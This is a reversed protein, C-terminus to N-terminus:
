PTAKTRPDGLDSGKPGLQNLRQEIARLREDIGPSITPDSADRGGLARIRRNLRELEKSKLIVAKRTEAIRELTLDLSETWSKRAEDLGAPKSAELARLAREDKASQSYDEALRAKLARVEIGLLDREAELDTREEARKEDDVPVEISPRGPATSTTGGPVSLSGAGAQPQSPVGPTGGPTPKSAEPRSAREFVERLHRPQVSSQYYLTLVQDNNPPFVDFAGPRSLPGDDGRMRSALRLQLSAGNRRYIGPVPMEPIATSQPFTLDVTKPDTGSDVRYRGVTKPGDPGAGAALVVIGDHFAYARVALKQSLRNASNSQVNWVGRLDDIGAVGFLQVSARREVDPQLREKLVQPVQQEYHFLVVFQDAVDKPRFSKCKPRTEDGPKSMAMWLWTGVRRFVARTRRLGGTSPDPDVLDISRPSTKADTEYRGIYPVRADLAVFKGSAFAYREGVQPLGEVPKGMVGASFQSDVTWIGDIDTTSEVPEKGDAREDMYAFPDIDLSSASDDPRSPSPTSNPASATTGLPVKAAPVTQGKLREVMDPTVTREYKLVAVRNNNPPLMDFNTPRRPDHPLGLSLILWDGSRKYIAKTVGDGGKTDVMYTFDIAHPESMTNLQYRGILDNKGDQKLFRGQHFVHRIGKGDTSVGKDVFNVVAWVGEIDPDSTERDTPAAAKPESIPVATAAGSAPSKGSGPEDRLAVASAGGAVLGLVLVGGAVKGLAAMMTMRPVGNVLGVVGMPVVEAGMRGGLSVVGSATRVTREILGEPMTARAEAAIGAALLGAPVGFGRRVLRARLLTRARALRGKVTGLPWDLLRAAEVHTREEIDCVVIPLRYREPLRDIEEHLAAILDGDLGPSDAAVATVISALDGGERRWRREATRNARNAVRRAVRHLWGGLVERRRIGRGQRVLLLFTAQFADEADHPDRLLRRCVGLVTPGHRSVIAEFAPEDGRTLFRDLLEGEGLGALSGEEFLRHLDRLSAHRAGNTTAM